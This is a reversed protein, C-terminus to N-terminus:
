PLGTGEKAEALRRGAGGSGELRRSERDRWIVGLAQSRSSEQPFTQRM